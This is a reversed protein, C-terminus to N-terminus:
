FWFSVSISTSLSRVHHWHKPPIYLMDGPNLTCEVVHSPNLPVPEHSPDKYYRVFDPFETGLTEIDLEPDIRSTNNLLGEYPYMPADPSALLIRKSGLVQVLLNHKVDWHFPTVTGPPGFWMNLDVSHDDDSHSTHFYGDRSDDGTHVYCYDPIIIDKKLQPIQTLLDHQALYAHSDETMHQDLFQNLSMLRQSWDEDTYKKGLEIPVLRPGALKRFYNLNWATLAPWHDVCNLLKLPRRVTLLDSQFSLLSPSTREMIPSGRIGKIKWKSLIVGNDQGRNNRSSCNMESQDVEESRRDMLDRESGTDMSNYMDMLWNVAQTVHTNNYGLLIGRDLVHICQENLELTWDSDLTSLLIAGMKYFCFQTYIHKIYEPVNKWTGTNLIEWTKNMGAGIMPSIIPELVGPCNVDTTNIKMFQSHIDLVLCWLEYQEKRLIDMSSKNYEYLVPELHVINLKTSNLHIEVTSEEMNFSM